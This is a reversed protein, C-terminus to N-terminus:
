YTISTFPELGDPPRPFPEATGDPQGIPCGYHDSLATELAPNDCTVWDPDAASSRAWLGDPNTINAMADTFSDHAPIPITTVWNGPLVEGQHLAAHNGLRVTCM